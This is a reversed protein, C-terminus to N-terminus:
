DIQVNNTSLVRRDIEYMVDFHSMKRRELKHLGELIDCFQENDNHEIKQYL